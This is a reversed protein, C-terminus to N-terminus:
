DVRYKLRGQMLWGIMTTFAEQARNSYDTCLFGEMRARKSSLNALNKPGPAPQDANYQSIMGCVSIRARLNILNLVAELIAGGVNDFYVDIGESRFLTTYPFLTSRPPRRIM